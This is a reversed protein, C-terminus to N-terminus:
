FARRPANIVLGDHSPVSVRAARQLAENIAAAGAIDGSRDPLEDRTLGALEAILQSAADLANPSEGGQGPEWTTLQNELDEFAGVFHVRGQRGLEAPGEGRSHKSGRSHVERVYITGPTYAPFPQARELLTVRMGREKAAARVLETLTSGGRNTEIIVGTCGDVCLDVVIKPWESATHMGSHEGTVYVHGDTGLSGDCIGTADSGERTTIAPDVSVLRQKPREPAFARRNDSIWEGQWLAGASQDYDRGEVEEGYRQSGPTYKACESQLYARPLLPNDFMSGRVLPNAEPDLTNLKRLLRIVDNRGKSTTDYFVQARGIRTATTINNFAELRTTGQWAILETLWATDFNPGRVHPSEATYAYARVGNPWVLGGLHRVPRFWPPSADILGQIQVENTREDNPGMLGVCQAEGAEVRRCIEAAIAYTKGWGRGCIFGYFRWAGSRIRQEPRLFVRPTNALVVLDADSLGAVYERAVHALANIAAISRSM